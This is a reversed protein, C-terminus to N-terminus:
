DAPDSGSSDATPVYRTIMTPCPVIARSRGASSAPRILVSLGPLIPASPVRPLLAFPVHHHPDSLAPRHTPSLTRSPRPIVMTTKNLHGHPVLHCSQHNSPTSWTWKQSSQHHLSSILSRRPPFCKQRMSNLSSRRQCTTWLALALRTVWWTSLPACETVPHVFLNLTLVGPPTKTVSDSMHSM